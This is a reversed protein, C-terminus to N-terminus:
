APMDPLDIVFRAGGGPADEVWARGGHEEAIQRVITLGIGSGGAAHNKAASGREFARWIRDRDAPAV